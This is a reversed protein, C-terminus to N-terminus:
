DVPKQEHPWGPAESSWPILDHIVFDGDHATAASESLAVFLYPDGTLGLSVRCTKTASCTVSNTADVTTTATAPVMTRRNWASASVTAEYQNEQNVTLNVSRKQTHPQRAGVWGKVSWRVPQESASATSGIDDKAGDLYVVRKKNTGVLVRHRNVALPLCTMSTITEDAALSPKWYTFRPRDPTSRAVDLCLVLDNGTSGYATVAFLVQGHEPDYTVCTLSAKDRALRTPSDADDFDLWGQSVVAPQVRRHALSQMWVIGQQSRWVVGYPTAIGAQRGVTGISTDVPQTDFNMPASGTRIWTQNECLLLTDNGVPFTQLIAGARAATRVYAEGVYGRLNSEAQLFPQLDRDDFDLIQAVNEPADPESWYLREVNDPDNFWWRDAAESVTTWPAPTSGAFLLRPGLEGDHYKDSFTSTATAERTVQLVVDLKGTPRYYADYTHRRWLEWRTAASDLTVSGVGIRMQCQLNPVYGLTYYTQASQATSGVTLTSPTQPQMPVSRANRDPNYGTVLWDYWGPEIRSEYLTGGVVSVKLAYELTGAPATLGMPFTSATDSFGLHQDGDSYYAYAKRFAWAGGDETLNWDASSMTTWANSTAEVSGDYVRNAVIHGNGCRAVLDVYRTGGDYRDWVDMDYVTGPATQKLYPVVGRRRSYAGPPWPELDKLETPVFGSATTPSAGYQMGARFM